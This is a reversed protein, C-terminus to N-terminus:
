QILGCKRCQFVDEGVDRLSGGCVRCEEEVFGEKAKERGLDEELSIESPASLWVVTTGIIRDFFRQRPDGETALGLIGDLLPFIYWFMKPISRILAKSLNMPELLSRVELDMIVKGLTRGQYGEFSASYLYFAAGSVLGFVELAQIRLLLLLIWVPLLVVISDIFFAAIRRIWHQQLARDHGILDFGTVM